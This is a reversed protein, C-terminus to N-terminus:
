RGFGAKSIRITCNTRPWNEREFRIRDLGVTLIMSNWASFDRMSYVFARRRCPALDARAMAMVRESLGYARGDVYATETRGLREAEIRCGFVRAEDQAEQPLALVRCADQSASM